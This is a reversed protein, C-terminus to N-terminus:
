SFIEDVAQKIEVDWRIEYSAINVILQKENRIGVLNFGDQNQDIMWRIALQSAKAGIKDALLTLKEAKKHSEQYADESFLRDMRRVDKFKQDSKFKGTLLGKSIVGYPILTMGQERMYDITEQYSRDLLSYPIQNSVINFDTLAVLGMKDVNSVGYALAKGEKVIDDLAGVSDVLPVNEDPWHLQILDIYDTQLRKLSTEVDLRIQKPSGNKSIRGRDDWVLGAKTAIFINERIGKFTKGIVEESHGMGYVPATDVVTLGLDIAKLLAKSSKEDDAAGWLHGGIAWAGFALNSLKKNSWEKEIYQIEM